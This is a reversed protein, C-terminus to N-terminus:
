DPYHVQEHYKDKNKDLWEELADITGYFLCQNNIDLINWTQYLPDFTSFVKTKEKQMKRIRM